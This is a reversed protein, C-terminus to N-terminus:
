GRYLKITGDNLLVSISQILKILTYGDNFKLSVDMIMRPANSVDKALIKLDAVAPALVSEIGHVKIDASKKVALLQLTSRHAPHINLLMWYFM